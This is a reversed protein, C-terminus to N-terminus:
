DDMGFLLGVKKLFTTPNQIDGPCKNGMFLESIERKQLCLKRMNDEITDVINLHHIFVQRDQGIRHIRNEAQYFRADNFWRDVMIMHRAAVLTIGESSSCLSLLCINVKEYPDNEFGHVIGARKKMDVNGQLRCIKRTPIYINIMNEILDLMGTWQSVIVVKEGDAGDIIEKIRLLKAPMHASISDDMDPVNEPDSNAVTDASFDSKGSGDNSPHDVAIDMKQLCLPCREDFAKKFCNDCFGHGCPQVLKTQETDCCADCESFKHPYTLFLELREIAGDLDTKYDGTLRNNQIRRMNYIVLSPSDCCQRLRLIFILVSAYALKVRYDRHNEITSAVCAGKKFAKIRDMMKKVRAKSYEYLLDNFKKERPTPTLMHPISIIKSLTLVQRKTRRIMIPVTYWQLTAVARKLNFTMNRQIMAVWSEYNSLPNINLVKMLPYIDGISNQIPTATVCWVAHGRLACISKSTIRSRDRIKHAEDLIIRGFNAQFISEIMFGDTDKDYDRAVLAYSTIIIDYDYNYTDIDINKRKNGHYILVKFTGKQFHKDIELQWNYILHSPAILLAPRGSPLRNEVCLSLMMLTKGLGAEDAVIGGYAGHTPSTERKIMWALGKLQHDRLTTRYCEKHIIDHPDIIKIYTDNNEDGFFHFDDDVM